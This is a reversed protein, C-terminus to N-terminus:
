RRPRRARVAQAAVADHRRRLRQPVERRHELRQSLGEIVYSPHRLQTGEAVLTSLSRLGPARVGCGCRPRLQSDFCKATRCSSARSSRGVARGPAAGASADRVRRRRRGGRGAQAEFFRSLRHEEDWLWNKAGAGTPLQRSRPTPRRWRSCGAARIRTATCWRRTKASPRTSAPSRAPSRRCSRARRGRRAPNRRGADGARVVTGVPALTLGTPAPFLRQALDDFGVRVRRAASRARVWTHGPAYYSTTAGSCTASASSARLRRRLADVGKMGALFLFVPVSLVALVLLLLGMRIALGAVLVAGSELATMLTDM